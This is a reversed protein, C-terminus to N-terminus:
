VISDCKQLFLLGFSNLSDLFSTLLSVIHNLLFDLLILEVLAYELLFLGSKLSRLFDHLKRFFLFFICPDLLRKQLILFLLNGSPNFLFVIDQPLLLVLIIFSIQFPDLLAAEFLM